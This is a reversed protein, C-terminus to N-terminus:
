FPLPYPARPTHPTLMKSSSLYQGLDLGIIIRQHPPLPLPSSPMTSTCMKQVVISWSWLPLPPPCPLPACKQVAISWIIVLIPPHPLPPPSPMTSPRMESSSLYQGPDLGMVIGEFLPTPPHQPAPPPPPLLSCEIFHESNVLTWLGLWKDLPLLKWNRFKECNVLVSWVWGSKM